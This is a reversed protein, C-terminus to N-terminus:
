ASTQVSDYPQILIEAPIGLEQNLKRIMELTLSRKRSLIESVRARSGLCSELDRHSWGRTDMYYQIAEIPDPKEIPFHAKEYAEVLTSLVDLRDCEPTNPVADFLLEIERLAEQYDAQTRIPRLEM